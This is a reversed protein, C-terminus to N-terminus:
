AVDSRYQHMKDAFLLRQVDVLAISRDGLEYVQASYPALWDPPRAGPAPQMGASDARMELVADVVCGITMGRHTMVLLRTRPTVVTSALGLYSALDVVSVINGRLQVVGLVWSVTNPVPTVDSLREVMQVAEAAVCCEVGGVSFVVYQPGVAVAPAGGAGSLDLGAVRALDAVGGSLGARQALDALQQPSLSGLSGARGAAPGLARLAERLANVSPSDGTQEGPAGAGSPFSGFNSM